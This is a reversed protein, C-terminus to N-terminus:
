IPEGTVQHLEKLADQIRKITKAPDAGYKQVERVFQEIETITHHLHTGNYACWAGLQDDPINFELVLKMIFFPRRLPRTIV